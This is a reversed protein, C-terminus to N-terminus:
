VVKILPAKLKHKERIIKEAAKYKKVGRLFPFLRYAFSPLWSSITGGGQVKFLVKDVWVGVHGQELMTLWLDWDQLRKINEDFGFFHERRILSTTHIYPMERLKEADFPWLKFNKWGYKFSSYVYSAQKNKGLTKLMVELMESKMEIDADCFIIYEGSADKAGRNRAPNSGNNEQNIFKFNAIRLRGAPLCPEYNKIRELIGDTSGDNVIIVEVGEGQSPSPHPSTLITQALISDLCRSLKDAQNYVPIVISIM